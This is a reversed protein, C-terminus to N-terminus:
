FKGEPGIEANPHFIQDKIICYEQAKINWGAKVKFRSSVKSFVDFGTCFCGKHLFITGPEISDLVM